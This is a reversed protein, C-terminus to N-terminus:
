IWTHLLDGLYEVKCWRFNRWVITLHKFMSFLECCIFELCLIFFWSPFIFIIKLVKKNLIKAPWIQFNRKFRYTGMIKSILPPLEKSAGGIVSYLQSWIPWYICLDVVDVFLCYLLLVIPLANCPHELYHNWVLMVNLKTDMQSQFTFLYM